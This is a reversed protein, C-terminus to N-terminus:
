STGKHSRIRLLDVDGAEVEMRRRFAGSAISTVLTALSPPKHVGKRLKGYLKDSSASYIHFKFLLGSM